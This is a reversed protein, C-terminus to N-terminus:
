KKHKIKIYKIRRVNINLHLHTADNKRKRVCRLDYKEGNYYPLYLLKQSVMHATQEM